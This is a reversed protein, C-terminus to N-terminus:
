NLALLHPPMFSTGYVYSQVANSNAYNRCATEQRTRGSGANVLTTKHAHVVENGNRVVAQAALRKLATSVVSGAIWLNVAALHATLALVARTVSAQV